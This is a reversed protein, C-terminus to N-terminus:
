QVDGRHCAAHHSVSMVRLGQLLSSMLFPLCCKVFMQRLPLIQSKYVKRLSAQKIQFCLFVSGYCHQNIMQWPSNLFSVFFVLKLLELTSILKMQGWLHSLPKVCVCGWSSWHLGHRHGRVAGSTLSKLEAARCENSNSTTYPWHHDWIVFCTRQLDKQM